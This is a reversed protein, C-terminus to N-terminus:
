FTVSKDYEEMLKEAFSRNSLQYTGAEMGAKIAAVREKRIDSAQAVAQKAIQYDRGMNSIHVEDKTAAVKGASQVKTKKTTQYIQSIQSYADIRM